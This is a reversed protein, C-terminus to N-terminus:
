HVKMMEPTWFGAGQVRSGLGQVRSGLGQVRSGLGQVRSGLGQVRSGRGEVRSGLGQRVKMMEPTWFGAGAADAEKRAEKKAKKLAKKAEKVAEPTMEAVAEPKSGPASTEELPADAEPKRKKTKEVPAAEPEDENEETVGQQRQMGHLTAASLAFAFTKCLRAEDGLAIFTKADAKTTQHRYGPFRTQDFHTVRVLRFGA